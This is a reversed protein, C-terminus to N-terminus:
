LGVDNPYVTSRGTQELRDGFQEDQGGGTFHRRRRRASNRVAATGQGQYLGFHRLRLGGDAYPTAVTIHSMGQFWWLLKGDLDYSRVKGSGPTVIETRKENKWVFPTSWNSKEDRDVRWVKKGTLKNLALLYSEQENDNVIYLRDGYLIPSAATGWGFRMTHPEIKYQWVPKGKFDFCFVGM